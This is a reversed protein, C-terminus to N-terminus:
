SERPRKRVLRIGDIDLIERPPEGLLHIGIGGSSGADPWIMTISGTGLDLFWDEIVKWTRDRVAKSMSPSLYVGPSVELMMSALYGRYRNEVNRTVILTTPM